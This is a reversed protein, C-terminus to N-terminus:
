TETGGAEGWGALVRHRVADFDAALREFQEDGTLVDACRAPMAPTISTAREVVEPFKAPSATALVVTALDLSTKSRAAFGGVATHPCILWGTENLVQRMETETETDSASVVSLGSRRLKAVLEVPLTACGSENFSRYIAAIVGSDRGSVDFLLRELNSPVSIDMAPSLTPLARDRVIVGDRFVRVLADNQNVACVFECEPPLMGSQMAVYGAFADGLNGSPVVFRVPRGVAAFTTAYYVCQAAIRAWNISNVGVLGVTNSFARDAFLRKVIAQCDDFDGELALNTINSAGTTTMFRRQIASVRDLPHLIYLDANEIGRFAAAAAGGTDGSTACMLTLRESRDKLVAQYLQAIFQMAVDKFALTPGHHLELIFSDSGTQVIPAVTQHSFSAYARSCIDLVDKHKLDSGAFAGLVRAAVDVYGEKRNAPEIAPWADPLFLGGDPALGTLCADTFSVPDSAGRTSVYRM